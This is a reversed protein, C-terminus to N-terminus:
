WTARSGTGELLLLATLSAVSGSSRRTVVSTLSGRVVLHAESSAESLTPASRSLGAIHCGGGVGTSPERHPEPLQAPYGRQHLPPHCAASATGHGTGTGPCATSVGVPHVLEGTRLHLFASLPVGSNKARPGPQCSVPVSATLNRRRSDQRTPDMGDRCQALEEPAAGPVAGAVRHLLAPSWRRLPPRLPGQPVAPATSHRSASWGSDCSRPSQIFAHSATGPPGAFGGPAFCRLLQQAAGETGGHSRRRGESEM